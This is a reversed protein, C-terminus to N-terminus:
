ILYCNVLRASTGVGLIEFGMLGCRLSGILQINLQNQKIPNNIYRHVLETHLTSLVVPMRLNKKSLDDNFQNVLNAVAEPRDIHVAHSADQLVLFRANVFM